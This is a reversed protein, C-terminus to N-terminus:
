IVDEVRLVHHVENIWADFTDTHHVIGSTRITANHKICLTRRVHDVIETFRRVRQGRVVPEDVVVVGHEMLIGMTRAVKRATALDSSDTYAIRTRRNVIAFITM